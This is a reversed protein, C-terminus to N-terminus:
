HNIRYICSAIYQQYGQSKNSKIEVSKETYIRRIRVKINTHITNCKINFEVMM